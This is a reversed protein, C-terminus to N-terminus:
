KQFFHPWCCGRLARSLPKQKCFSVFADRRSVDVRDDLVQMLTQDDLQIVVEESTKVDNLSICTTGLRSKSLATKLIVILM